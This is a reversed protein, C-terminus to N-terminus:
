GAFNQVLAIQKDSFPRAEDRRVLVAGIAAEERLLPVGMTARHGFFFPDARRSPPIRNKVPSSDNKAIQLTPTIAL